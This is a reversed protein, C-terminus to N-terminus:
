WSTRFSLSGQRGCLEQSFSGCKKWLLPMEWCKRTTCLHVGMSTFQLVAQSKSSPKMGLFGNINKILKKFTSAFLFSLNKRKHSM